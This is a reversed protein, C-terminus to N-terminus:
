KGTYRLQKMMDVAAVGRQMDVAAVGRQM